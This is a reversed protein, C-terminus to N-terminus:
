ADPLLGGAGGGADFQHLVLVVGVAVGDPAFDEASLGTHLDELVVAQVPHQGVALIAGGGAVGVVVGAVAEDLARGGLGHEVQAVALDRHGHLDYNVVILCFLLAANGEIGHGAVEDGALGGDDHGGVAVSFDSPAPVVQIVEVGSLYDGVSGPM